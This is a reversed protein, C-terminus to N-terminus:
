NKRSIAEVTLKMKVLRDLTDTASIIQNENFFHVFLM